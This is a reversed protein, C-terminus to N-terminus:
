RRKLKAVEEMLARHELSGKKYKGAMALLQEVKQKKKIEEDLAMRELSNERYEAEEKKLDEIEKEEATMPTELRKKKSIDKTKINEIPIIEWGRGDDSPMSEPFFKINRYVMLLKSLKEKDKEELKKSDETDTIFKIIILNDFIDSGYKAIFKKIWDGVSNKSADIKEESNLLKKALEDKISLDHNLLKFIQRNVAESIIPNNNLEYLIQSNFVKYIYVIEQKATMEKKPHVNIFNIREMLPKIVTEELDKKIEKAKRSEIKEEIQLYKEIGDMQMDGTAIFIMIPSLSLGHKKEVMALNDSVFDSDVSLMIEAPMKKFKEISKELDLM